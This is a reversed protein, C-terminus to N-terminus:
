LCLRAFSERFRIAWPRYEHAMPRNSFHRELVGVCECQYRIVKPKMEEKVKNEDISFLWGHLTRLDIMTTRQAGGTSPVVRVTVYAWSRGKLKAAQFDYDVELIRCLQRLGVLVRGDDGICADITDGHFDVPVLESAM